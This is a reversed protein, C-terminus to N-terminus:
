VEGLGGEKAYDDVVRSHKSIMLLLPLDVNSLIAM